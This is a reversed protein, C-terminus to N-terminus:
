RVEVRTYTYLTVTDSVAINFRLALIQMIADVFSIYNTVINLWPRTRIRGFVVRKM